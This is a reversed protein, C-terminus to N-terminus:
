PVDASLTRTGVLRAWEALSTVLDRLRARTEPDALEGAGDLLSTVDAVFLTPRSLVAAQVSVLMQRVMTQAIRTGWPGTTAGTVAVPLGTLGEDGEGRSLWDILNKVVGPAAQNYEPTAILLADSRALERRLGVVGPPDLPANELDENFVPVTDLGEYVFVDVNEPALEAAARLLAQNHSHRRLSGAVALIRVPRAVSGSPTM